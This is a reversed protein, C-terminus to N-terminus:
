GNARTQAASLLQRVARGWDERGEQTQYQRAGAPQHGEFDAWAQLLLATASAGSPSQNHEAGDVSAKIIEYAPHATNLVIRVEGGTRKLQFFAPTDLPGETWTYELGEDVIRSYPRLTQSGEQSDSPRDHEQTVLAPARRNTLLRGLRRHGAAGYWQSWWSALAKVAEDPLLELALKARDRADDMETSSLRRNQNMDNTFRGHRNKQGQRWSSAPLGVGTM